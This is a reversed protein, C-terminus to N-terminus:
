QAIMRNFAVINSALRTLLKSETMVEGAPVEAMVERTNAHRFFTVRAAGYFERVVSMAATTTLNETNNPNTAPM